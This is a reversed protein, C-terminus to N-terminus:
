CTEEGASIREQEYLNQLALMQNAFDHRLQAAERGKEKIQEYRIRENEYMLRYERLRKEERLREADRCFLFVAYLAGAVGAACGLLGFFSDKGQTEILLFICTVNSIFLILIGKGEGSYEELLGRVKQNIKVIAMVTIGRLLLFLLFSFSTGESNVDLMDYNPYRLGTAFVAIMSLLGSFTAHVGLAFLYRFLTGKYVLVLSLVTFLWALVIFLRTLPFGVKYTLMNKVLAFLSFLLIVIRAQPKALRRELLIDSTKTFLLTDLLVSTQSLLINM